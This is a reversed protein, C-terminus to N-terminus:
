FNETPPLEKNTGFKIQKLFEKNTTILAYKLSIAEQKFKLGMHLYPVAKGGIM